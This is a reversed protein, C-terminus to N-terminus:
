HNSNNNSQPLNPIFNLYNKRVSDRNIKIKIKIKINTNLLCIPSTKIELVLKCNARKKFTKFRM